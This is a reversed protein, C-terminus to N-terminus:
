KGNSPAGFPFFKGRQLQHEAVQLCFQFMSMGKEQLEKRMLPDMKDWNLNMLASFAKCDPSMIIVDPQQTFVVNWFDARDALDFFDWGELLDFSGPQTNELGAREAAPTVRAPSFLECVKLGGKTKLKWPQAKGVRPPELSGTAHAYKRAAYSMLETVKKEEEETRPNPVRATEQFEETRPNPVRATQQSQMARGTSPNVPERATQHGHMARGTSPNDPERTFGTAFAFHRSDTRDRSLLPEVTALMSRKDVGRIQFEHDDSNDSFVLSEVMDYDYWVVWVRHDDNFYHVSEVVGCKNWYNLVAQTLPAVLYYGFHETCQSVQATELLRMAGSRPLRCVGLSRAGDARQHEYNCGRALAHCGIDYTPSTTSERITTPVSSSGDGGDAIDGPTSASEADAADRGPEHNCGHGSGNASGPSSLPGDDDGSSGRVVNGVFSASRQSGQTAAAGSSSVAGGGTSGRLQHGDAHGQVKAEDQDKFQHQASQRARVEPVRDQDPVSPVEELDRIPQGWMGGRRSPSHVRGEFGGASPHQGCWLVDEAVEDGHPVLLEQGEGESGRVECTGDGPLPISRRECPRCAPVAGQQGGHSTIVPQCSRPPLNEFITSRPREPSRHLLDREPCVLNKERSDDHRSEAVVSVAHQNTSTERCTERKVHCSEEVATERCTERKVHCSEEVAAEFCPHYPETLFVTVSVDPVNEIRGHPESLETWLEFGEKSDFHGDVLDWSIRWPFQQAGPVPPTRCVQPKKSIVAMNGFRDHTLGEFARHGIIEWLFAEIRSGESGSMYVERGCEQSIEFADPELGHELLLHQPAQFKGGEWSAVDLIRHGTNLRIMEADRGFSKFHVRNEDTDIVAKGYELLGISVLHPIDDQIITMRVIGPQGALFCPVLSSFLAKAKGGVGAPEAPKGPLKVPKLGLGALRQVLKQYAKEGILDQSAGPDVIAYGPPIELFSLGQQAVLNFMVKSEEQVNGGAYAFAVLNKGVGPQQAPPGKSKPQDCDEEWHGKAHCRRCRTVKKLEQISLKRRNPPRGPRTSKEDFHRRDRRQAAKLTKNESWSKKKTKWETLFTMAQDEDLNQHEATFLIMDYEHEDDEEDESPQEADDAAAQGYFTPRSGSKVVSEEETDLIQLAKKVDSFSSSGNTLVRLNQLGQKNLGSQEEMMFGRLEEPIELYQSASAFQAERRLAYQALSEDSKRGGEYLAARVQRRRESTEKEGALVDFIALIDNLYSPASLQAESLHDLKQQMQWEFTKLVKEARRWVVVDTNANWRMISRKWLRYNSWGGWAPPDGHWPQWSGYWGGRQNGLWEAWPDAGPRNEPAQEVVEQRGRERGGATGVDESGQPRDAASSAEGAAGSGWWTSYSWRTANWQRWEEDSWTTVPMRPETVQESGGGSVFDEVDQM